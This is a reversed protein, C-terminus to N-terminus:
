PDLSKTEPSENSPPWGHRALQNLSTIAEDRVNEALDSRMQLLENFALTALERDGCKRTLYELGHPVLSRPVDAKSAKLRRLTELAREDCYSEGVIESVLFLSTSDTLDQYCTELVRLLEEKQDETLYDFSDQFVKLLLFSGEMTLFEHLSIIKMLERFLTPSFYGVKLLHTDLNYAEEGLQEGNRSLVTRRLAEIIRMEDELSLMSVGLM